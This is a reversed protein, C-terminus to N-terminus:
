HFRFTSGVRLLAKYHFDSSSIVLSVQIFGNVKCRYAEGFM